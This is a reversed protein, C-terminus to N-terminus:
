YYIFVNVCYMLLVVVCVQWGDDYSGKSCGYIQKYDQVVCFVSVSVCHM